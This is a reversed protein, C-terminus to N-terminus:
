CHMNLVGTACFSGLSALVNIGFTLSFGHFLSSKILKKQPCLQAYGAVQLDFYLSVLGDVLVTFPPIFTKKM